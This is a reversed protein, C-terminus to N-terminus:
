RQDDVEQQRLEELVGNCSLINSLHFPAYGIGPRDGGTAALGRRRLAGAMKRGKVNRRYVVIENGYDNAALFGPNWNGAVKSDDGLGIQCDFQGVDIWKRM